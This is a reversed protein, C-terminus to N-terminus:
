DEEIPEIGIMEFLENWKKNCSGCEILRSETEGNFYDGELSKSGCHPCKLGLSDLYETVQKETFEVV